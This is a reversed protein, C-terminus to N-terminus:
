GAQRELADLYTKLTFAFDAGAQTKLFHPALRALNPLGLGDWQRQDWTNWVARAEERTSTAGRTHALGFGFALAILGRFASVQGSPPLGSEALAAAGAELVALARPSSIQVQDRALLILVHPHNALTEYLSAILTELRDRWPRAPNPLKIKAVALNAIELLLEEKGAVHNYLSMAEVGLAQALKRMSLGDLGDRNLLLFGTEVIGARTLAARGKPKPKPM